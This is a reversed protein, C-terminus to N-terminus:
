ALRLSYIKEKRLLLVYSTDTANEYSDFTRCGQMACFPMRVPGGKISRHPSIRITAIEGSEFSREGICSFIWAVKKRYNGM